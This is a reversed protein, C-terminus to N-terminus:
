KTETRNFLPVAPAATEVGFRRNLFDMVLTQDSESLAAITSSCISVAEGTQDKATRSRRSNIIQPSEAM